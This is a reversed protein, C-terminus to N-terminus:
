TRRARCMGHSKWLESGVCHHCYFLGHPDYHQKIQYLRAYNAGWFVHQWNKQFYDGENAYSGANPALREFYSMAHSVKDRQRIAQNHNLKQGKIEPYYNNTGSAMLVLTASDYLSPNVSTTKESSLALNSGGALGKQIHLSFPRIRSAKYFVNVTKKIHDSKFLHLPLWWSSYAYWYMSVQDNDPAWWYQGASSGRMFNPKVMEPKHKKWYALDWMKAPSIALISLKAHMPAWIKEVQAKTLGQYVMGITITNDPGFGIQEGWHKNNLHDRFFVLFKGILQKYASNNKAKLTGQVLGFTSPLPYTKLTMKTVVGFTGGGGGRLAWFLDKNQYPNAIVTKGDATVVTM